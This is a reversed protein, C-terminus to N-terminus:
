LEVEVDYQREFFPVSHLLYGNFPAQALFGDLPLYFELNM